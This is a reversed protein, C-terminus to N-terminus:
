QRGGGASESAANVAAVFSDTLTKARDLDCPASWLAHVAAAHRPEVDPHSAVGHHAAKQAFSQVLGRLQDRIRLPEGLRREAEALAAGLRDVKQLLPLARARAAPWPLSSLDGTPGSALVEARVTAVSPVALPPVQQVKDRVTAALARTRAEDLDLLDLRATVGRWRQLLDDRERQAAELSRRTSALEQAAARRTDARPQAADLQSALSEVLSVHVGLEPALRRCVALDDAARAFVQIDALQGAERETVSRDVRGVVAELLRGAEALDRGVLEGLDDLVAAAGLASAAARDTPLLAEVADLRDAIAKRAVFAADVDGRDLDTGATRVREELTLLQDTHVALWTRWEELLRVLDAATPVAPATM